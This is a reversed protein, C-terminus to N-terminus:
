DFSIDELIELEPMDLRDTERKRGRKRKTEIETERNRDTDKEKQRERHTERKEASAWPPSNRHLSPDFDGTFLISTKVYPICLV